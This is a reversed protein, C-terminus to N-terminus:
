LPAFVTGGLQDRHELSGDQPASASSHTFYKREGALRADIAEQLTVHLGLYVRKKDVALHVQWKRVKENWYIGKIGSKSKTLMSRNQLNKEHPIDRLNVWRNDNKIQNIHDIVNSPWEGTMIIWAIRHVPYGFGDIKIRLYGSPHAWGIPQGAKRGTKRLLIGTEPIYDFLTRIQEATHHANAM